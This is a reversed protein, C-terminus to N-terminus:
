ATDYLLMAGPANSQFATGKEWSVSTKESERRSTERSVGKRKRSERQKKERSVGEKASERRGKEQSM